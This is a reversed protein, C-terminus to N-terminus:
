RVPALAKHRVRASETAAGLSALTLILFCLGGCILLVRASMRRFPLLVLGTVGYIFLIDGFWILYAHVFGIAVLWLTRRYYLDAAM